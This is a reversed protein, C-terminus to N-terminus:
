KKPARLAWTITAPFMDELQEETIKEEYFAAMLADENIVRKTEYVENGIGAEDIITEALAENLKRSVRRQKELRSVGDIEQDLFLNINGKDDPDGELDMKEFIKTRLEKVRSEMFDMSSKLKLYERVQTEFDEPNSLRPTEEEIVKAM